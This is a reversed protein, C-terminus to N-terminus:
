HLKITNSIFITYYYYLVSYSNPDATAAVLFIIKNHTFLQFYFTHSAANQNFSLAGSSDHSLVPVWHNANYINSKLNLNKRNHFEKLILCCAKWSIYILLSPHNTATLWFNSWFQEKLSSWNKGKHRWKHLVRNLSSVSTDIPEDNSGNSVWVISGRETDEAATENKLVNDEAPESIDPTNGTQILISSYNKQNLGCFSPVLMSYWWFIDSKNSVDCVYYM